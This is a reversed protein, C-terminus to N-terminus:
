RALYAMHLPPEALVKPLNMHYWHQRLVRGVIAYFEHVLELAYPSTGHKESGSLDAPGPQVENSRVMSDYVLLWPHEVLLALSKALNHATTLGALWM